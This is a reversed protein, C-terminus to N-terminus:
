TFSKRDPQDGTGNEVERQGCRSQITSGRYAASVGYLFVPYVFAAKKCTTSEM